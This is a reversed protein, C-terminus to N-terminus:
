RNEEPVDVVWNNLEISNPYNFARYRLGWVGPTLVYINKFGKLTLFEAAEYAEPGNGFGTIIIPSIKTLSPLTSALTQAPINESGKIRGRNRWGEPSKNNFEEQPRIDIIFANGATALTNFAEADLLNYGINREVLNGFLKQQASNLQLWADLGNFATYITSYGKSSLISAAKAAEDGYADVVLVPNAKSIKDLSNELQSLPINISGKLKGLAKDKEINSIAKFSSDTRVDVITIAPTSKILGYVQQPNYLQWVNNTQLLNTKCPVASQDTLYLDTLGGNVNIVNTFGSDVLMKSCRRSRQSHSCYLYIPKNKYADIESLRKGLETINIHTAGKLHGINLSSNESTDAYEGQSRVDLLLADKELPFQKCFQEWYITKYLVNDNKFQAMAISPLLLLLLINKM